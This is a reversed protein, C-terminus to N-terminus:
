ARKEVKAPLAQRALLSIFERQWKPEPRDRLTVASWPRFVGRKTVRVARAAGARLAPEIAWRAMVSIGLGAKVLELIAETLPVESVRAPEVGAPTLIRSFTYSDARDASYIILHEEAFDDPDVFSKRAFPHDPSVVAVLEDEFLPTLVLRKDNVSSTVVALDIEGELLAEVPRKTAAVAIQVDVGPYKRHFSQLLPPLWHYGTNCQTCLRLVGKGHQSMVRLDDEARRLEELVRRSSSLVRDGAPTLVMKKGLRLFLQLGLRSEIDRLQHSLASQTLHLREAARTVSGTGAIESVLALHRVEITLGM